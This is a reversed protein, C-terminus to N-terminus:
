RSASSSSRTSRAASSTSCGTADPRARRGQRFRHRASRHHDPHAGDRQGERRRRRTERALARRGRRPKRHRGHHAGADGARLRRRRLLRRGRDPAAIAIQPVPGQEGALMAQEEDNLKMADTDTKLRAIRRLRARGQGVERAERQQFEAFAAVPEADAHVGLTALRSASTARVARDAGLERQAAPRAVDAPLDAPASCAGVVRTAEFDKVGRSPSRRSRRCCRRARARQQRRARAAQGGARAAAGVAASRVDAPDPRRAPRHRGARQGQVARAPARHRGGRRVDRRHPPGPTGNGASGFTISGPAQRARARDARRRDHVPARRTARRGGGACSAVCRSRRSTRRGPRLPLKKYLTPNIAHTGVTGILLTYGDPPSKRSSTPASRAARAAATTSSWAAAQARRRAAARASARRHRDPRGAPFPVVLRIPKAPFAQARAPGVAVAFLSALGVVVVRRDPDASEGRQLRAERGRAKSTMRGESRIGQGSSRVQRERRARLGHVAGAVDGRARRGREHAARLVGERRRRDRHRARPPQRRRGLTGAPVFIGQWNEINFGPLGAEAMTPVDPLAPWRTATTVALAVLKGAKIHPLAPPLGAFFMPVQGALLDNVAPAGGKYPVHLLDTGTMLRFQEAALHQPGGTGSSAYSLGTKQSKIYQVLEAVTRAPVSPHIVLVLPAAAIKTVPVLDKAPDYTMRPYLHPNIVIEAPSALLVTYGDPLAKAVADAGINGGAGPKNEVVVPQGWIQSLRQALTRAVVDTAGGPAFPVIVHVAREPFAARATGAGFAILSAVLWAAACLTRSRCM